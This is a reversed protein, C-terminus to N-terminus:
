QPVGMLDNVLGEAKALPSGNLCISLSTGFKGAIRSFSLVEGNVTVALMEGMHSGTWKLLAQAGRPLFDFRLAPEEPGFGIADCDWDARAAALDVETLVAQPSVWVRGVGGARPRELWGSRPSESAAAVALVARAPGQRPQGDRTRTEKMSKAIAETQAWAQLPVDVKWCGGEQGAGMTRTQNSSGSPSELRYTVTVERTGFMASRSQAQADTVHWDKRRAEGASLFATLIEANTAQRLREDTWQSGLLRERFELSGPAYRSDVLQRLRGSFVKLDSWRILSVAVQPDTVYATVFAVAAAEPSEPCQPAAIASTLASSALAASALLRSINM